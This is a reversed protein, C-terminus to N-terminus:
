KHIDRSATHMPGTQSKPESHRVMGADGIHVKGDMARLGGGVGFMLLCTVFLSAEWWRRGEDVESCEGTGM